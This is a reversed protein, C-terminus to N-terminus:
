KHGGWIATLIGIGGAVCASIIANIVSAKGAQKSEGREIVGVRDTLKERDQDCKEQYEKFENQKTEIRVLRSIIENNERSTTKMWDRSEIIFLGFNQINAENTSIRKEYNDPM